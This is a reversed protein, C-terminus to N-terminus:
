PKFEFTLSFNIDTSKLWNDPPFVMNTIKPDKELNQKFQSLTERNDSIGLLTVTLVKSNDPKQNAKIDGLKGQNVLISTLSLGSSKDIGSIEKLADSVYANNKYFSDIKTLNQNNQEVVNEYFIFDSDQYIKKSNTLIDQQQQMTILISFNVILLILALSIFYALFIVCLIIALNKTQDLIIAKKEQPPLLNIM